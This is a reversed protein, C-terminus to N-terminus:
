MGIADKQEKIQQAFKQRVEVNSTNSETLQKLAQVIFGRQNVLMRKIQEMRAQGQTLRKILEQEDTTDEDLDNMSIAMLQNATSPFSHIFVFTKVHKLKIDLSVLISFAM